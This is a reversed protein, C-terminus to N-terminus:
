TPKVARDNLMEGEIVCLVTDALVHTMQLCELFWLCDTVSTGRFWILHTHTHTQTHTSTPHPRYLLESFRVGTSQGWLLGKVWWHSAKHNLSATSGISRSHTIMDVKLLSSNLKGPPWLAQSAQTNLWVGSIRWVTIRDKVDMVMDSWCGIACLQVLAVHLHPWYWLALFPPRFYLTLETLYWVCQTKKVLQGLLWIAQALYGRIPM